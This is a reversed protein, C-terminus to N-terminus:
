CQKIKHRQVFFQSIIFLFNQLDLRWSIIYSTMRKGQKTHVTDLIENRVKVHLSLVRKLFNKNDSLCRKSTSQFFSIIDKWNIKEYYEKKQRLESNLTEGM